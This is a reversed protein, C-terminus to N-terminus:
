VALISGQKLIHINQRRAAVIEARIERGFLTKMHGVYFPIHHLCYTDIRNLLVSPTMHGSSSALSSLRDPFAVHALIFALHRERQAAEWFERTTGTDSTFM